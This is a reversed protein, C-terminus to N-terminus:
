WRLQYVHPFKEFVTKPCVVVQAGIVTCLIRYFSLEAPSLFDERQRFPLDIATDAGGLNVGILRLIATL